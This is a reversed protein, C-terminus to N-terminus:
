HFEVKWVNGVCTCCSISQNQLSKWVFWTSIHFSIFIKLCCFPFWSLCESHILIFYHQSFYLILRTLRLHLAFGRLWPSLFRTLLDFLIHVWCPRIRKLLSFELRLHAPRMKKECKELAILFGRARALIDRGQSCNQQGLVTSCSGHTDCVVDSMIIIFKSFFFVTFILTSLLWLSSNPLFFWLSFNGRM